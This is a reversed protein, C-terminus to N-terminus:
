VMNEKNPKPAFASIAWQSRQEREQEQGKLALYVEPLGTLFFLRWLGQEDM